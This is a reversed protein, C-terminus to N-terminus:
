ASIRVADGVLIVLLTTKCLDFNNSSVSISSISLFLFELM